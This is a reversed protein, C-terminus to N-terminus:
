RLEEVLDEEEGFGLVRELMGQGVLDGVPCQETITLAGQVSPEDVGDLLDVVPPEVFLHLPQSLVGLPALYPSLRHRIRLLSARASHCAARIRRGGPKELRRQGRQGMEWWM